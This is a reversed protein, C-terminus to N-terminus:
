VGIEVRQARALPCRIAGCPITEEQGFDSHCSKSITGSNLERVSVHDLRVLQKGAGMGSFRLLHRPFLLERCLQGQGTSGKTERCVRVKLDM